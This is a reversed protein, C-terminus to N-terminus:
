KKNKQIRIAEKHILKLLSKTFDGHVAHTAARELRHKVVEEWRAKQYLPLGHANKLIGVQTVAKFRAGLAKLLAEDAADIKKRCAQLSKALKAAERDITIKIKPKKAM